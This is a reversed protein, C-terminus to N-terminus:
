AAASMSASAAARALFRARTWSGSGGWSGSGSGSSSGSSHGTQRSGIVPAVAVSTQPWRKQLSQMVSQARLWAVHGM